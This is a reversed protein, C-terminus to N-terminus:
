ENRNIDAINSILIESTFKPQYKIEENAGRSFSKLSSPTDSYGVMQHHLQDKRNLGMIQNETHNMLVAVATKWSGPKGINVRFAIMVAM